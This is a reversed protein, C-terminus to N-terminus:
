TLGRIDDELDFKRFDQAGGHLLYMVPYRRTTSFYDDPLLVNVGPDWGLNPTDFRYYHMRGFAAHDVIRLGFGDVAARARGPKWAVGLASLAAAGGAVKLLSRRSIVPETTM